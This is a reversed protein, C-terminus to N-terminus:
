ANVNWVNMVNWMEKQCKHQCIWNSIVENGGSMFKKANISKEKNYGEACLFKCGSQIIWPELNFVKWSSLCM